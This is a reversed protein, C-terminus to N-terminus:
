DNAAGAAIWQRVLAIEDPPLMTGIPMTDGCMFPDQTGELKSVLFSGDPNGAAVRAGCGTLHADVGVLQAYATGASSLDLDGSFRAGAAGHCADSACTPALINAYLSSWTATATTGRRAASDGVPVCRNTDFDCLHLPSCDASSTCAPAAITTTAEIVPSGCALWVRLIELGENTDLEPLPTGVTDGPGAYQRYPAPMTDQGAQGPPMEGDYVTEYIDDRFHQIRVQAGLLHAAGAHEDAYRPDDALLPDFDLDFPAGYRDSANEVHCFSGGGACSRILIAQGAYAPAGNADYVLTHASARDAASCEHGVAPRCATLSALGLAFFPLRRLARM